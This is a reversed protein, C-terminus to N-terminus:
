DDDAAALAAGVTRDVTWKEPPLHHEGAWAVTLPASGAEDLLRSGIADHRLYRGVRGALGSRESWAAVRVRGVVAAVATAGVRALTGLDSDVKGVDHLLAAALVPRPAGDLLRDVERAVGAAHKRDALSLRAWLETEGPLLQEAVWRADAAALPRPSLSGLFRRALHLLRSM